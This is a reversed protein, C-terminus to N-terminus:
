SPNPISVIEGRDDRMLKLGKDPIKLVLLQFNFLLNGDKFGKNRIKNDYRAYKLETKALKPQRSLRNKQKLNNKLFM